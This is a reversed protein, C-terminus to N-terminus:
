IDGNLTNLHERFRCFPKMFDFQDWFIINVSYDDVLQYLRRALIIFLFVIFLIILNQQISTKHFLAYQNDNKSFKQM